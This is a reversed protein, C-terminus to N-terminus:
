PALKLWHPWDDEHYGIENAYARLITGEGPRIGEGGKLTDLGALVDTIKLGRRALGNDLAQNRGKGKSTTLTARQPLPDCYSRVESLDARNFRDSGDASDRDEKWNTYQLRDCEITLLLVAWRVAEDSYRDKLAGLHPLSGKAIDFVDWKAIAKPWKEASAPLDYHECLKTFRSQEAKSM